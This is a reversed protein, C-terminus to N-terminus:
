STMGDRRLRPATGMCEVELRHGHIGGYNGVLNLRLDTGERLTRPFQRDAAAPLGGSRPRREVDDIRGRALHERLRRGAVGLVDIGAYRARSGKFSASRTSALPPSSARSSVRSLPIGKRIARMTAANPAALIEPM